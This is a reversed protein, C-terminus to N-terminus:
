KTATDSAIVLPTRPKGSYTDPLAKNQKMYGLAHCANSHPLFFRCSTEMLFSIPELLILIFFEIFSNSIANMARISSATGRPAIGCDVAPPLMVDGGTTSM